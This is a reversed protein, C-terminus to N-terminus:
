TRDGMYRFLKEVRPEHEHVKLSTTTEKSWVCEFDNPASYESVFVYNDKSMKRCWDWFANHDIDKTSYKTTGLYPPDCYIVADKM